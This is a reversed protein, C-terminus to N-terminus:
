SGWFLFIWRPCFFVTYAQLCGIMKPDHFKEGDTIQRTNTCGEGHLFCIPQQSPGSDITEFQDTEVSRLQKQCFRTSRPILDGQVEVKTLPGICGGTKPIAKIPPGDALAAQPIPTLVATLSIKQGIELNIDARKWPKFGPMLIQLSYRNATLAPFRCTGEANTLFTRYYAKDATLTVKADTLPEQNANMVKVTINGKYSGQAMPIPSLIGLLVLLMFRGIM